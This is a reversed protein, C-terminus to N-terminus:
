QREGATKNLMAVSRASICLMKGEANMHETTTAKVSVQLMDIGLVTSISERMKETYPSLKPAQAIITSDINVICYGKSKLLEDVNKLLKLSSIGLFREDSDPFLKGIDGLCAAGLLADIIAHTLVDADSHGQLGKAHPIEVGGLVLKRGEILAHTDEGYGISQMTAMNVLEMDEPYTLKQNAQSGDIYFPIEGSRIYVECDDTAGTYDCTNYASKLKAFDFAQPTQMQLYDDREICEHTHRNRLTDKVKVAAIGSGHEIAAFISKEILEATVFCRAADHIVIIDCATVSNLAKYVSESRTRGGSVIAANINLAECTKKIENATDSQSATFVYEMNQKCALFAEACLRIPTKSNIKATLKNYGMRNSQGACLIICVVKKKIDCMM